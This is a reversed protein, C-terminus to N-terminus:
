FRTAQLLTSKSDLDLQQLPLSIVIFLTESFLAPLFAKSLVLIDLLFFSKTKHFKECSEYSHTFQFSKIKLLRSDDIKLM